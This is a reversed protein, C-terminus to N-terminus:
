LQKTERNRPWFLSASESSQTYVPLLGPMKRMAIAEEQESFHNDGMKLFRLAFQGNICLNVPNSRWRKCLTRQGDKSGCELSMSVIVLYQQQLLVSPDQAQRRPNLLRSQQDLSFNQLREHDFSFPWGPRQDLQAGSALKKTQQFRRAM